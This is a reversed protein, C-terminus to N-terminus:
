RGPSFRDYLARLCERINGGHEEYLAELSRPDAIDRGEEDLLREVITRLLAPSTRHHRLTPLGCRYHSTVLLGGARRSTGSVWRRALAGLQEYGDVTILTAPDSRRLTDKDGASLRPCESSLRVRAVRWGQRDFHREVDELLTTKGSGRPGVLAGRFRNLAFRALLLDWERPEILYGVTLLRDTRFPNTRATVDGM